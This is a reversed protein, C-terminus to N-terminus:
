GEGGGQEDVWTVRDKASAAGDAESAGGREM